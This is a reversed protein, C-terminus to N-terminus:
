DKKDVATGQMSMGTTVTVAKSTPAAPAENTATPASKKACASAALVMGVLVFLRTIRTIMLSELTMPSIGILNYVM